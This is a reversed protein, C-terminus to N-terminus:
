VAARRDSSHAKRDAFAVNPMPPMPCQANPANLALDLRGGGGLLHLLSVVARHQGLVPLPLPVRAGPPEEIDVM